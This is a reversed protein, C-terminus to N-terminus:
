NTPHTQNNQPKAFKLKLSCGDWTFMVLSLLLLLCIISHFCVVSSVQFMFSVIFSGNAQVKTQNEITVMQESSPSPLSM